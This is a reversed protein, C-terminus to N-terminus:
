EVPQSRPKKGLSAGQLADVAQDDGAGGIPLPRDVVRTGGLDIGVVSQEPPHVPAPQIRFRNMVRHEPDGATKVRGHAPRGDPLKAETRANVDSRDDIVCIVVPATRTGRPPANVPEKVPGQRIREHVAQVLSVSRLQSGRVSDIM